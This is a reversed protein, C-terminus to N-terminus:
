NCYRNPDELKPMETNEQQSVFDNGEKTLVKEVIKEKMQNLDEKFDFSLQDLLEIAEEERNLNLLCNIKRLGLKKKKDEPIGAKFALDIDTVAASFMQLDHHAASMNAYALSMESTDPEAYLLASNYLGLSKSCFSLIIMSISVSYSTRTLSIDLRTQHKAFAKNGALRYLESKKGDKRDTNLPWLSRLSFNQFQNVLVPQLTGLRSSFDPAALFRSLLDKDSKITKTPDVLCLNDLYVPSSMKMLVSILFSFMAHQAPM